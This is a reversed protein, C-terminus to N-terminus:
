VKRSKTMNRKEKQMEKKKSNKNQVKKPLNYKIKHLLPHTDIM